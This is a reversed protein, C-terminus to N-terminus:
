LQNSGTSEKSLQQQIPCTFSFKKLFNLEMSDSSNEDSEELITNQDGFELHLDDLLAAMLKLAHKALPNCLGAYGKSKTNNASQRNAQLILQLGSFLMWTTFMHANQCIQGAVRNSQRFIEFLSSY